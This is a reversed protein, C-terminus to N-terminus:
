RKKKPYIKTLFDFSTMSKKRSVNAVIKGIKSLPIKYWDELSNINAKKELIKLKDVAESIRNKLSKKSISSALTGKNLLRKKAFKKRVRHAFVGYPIDFHKSAAKVSKFYIGNIKIKKVFAPEQDKKAITKTTISKIISWGRYRRGIYTSKKIKHFKCAANISRFNKGNITIEQIAM